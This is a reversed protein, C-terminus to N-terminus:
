LDFRKELDKFINISNKFAFIAEDAMTIDLLNRLYEKMQTKNEFHYCNTWSKPDTFAPSLWYSERGDSDAASDNAANEAYTEYHTPKPVHKAIIQGGYMDGFHRVYLHALLQDVDLSRIYDGYKVTSEELGAKYKYQGRDQTIPLIRQIDILIPHKSWFDHAGLTNEITEYIHQMNYLYQGYQEDTMKGSVLLKSWKTNEAEEHVERTMKKLPMFLEM